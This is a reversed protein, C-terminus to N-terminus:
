GKQSKYNSWGTRLIQEAKKIDAPTNVQLWRRIHRVYVPFLRSALSHPISYEVNELQQFSNDFVAPPLVYAGVGICRKIGASVVDRGMLRGDDHYIVTESQADSVVVSIGYTASSGILKDLEGVGFIDDSGVVLFYDESVLHSQASLLGGGTGPYKQFAYTIPIGNYTNGLFSQITEGLYGVVVVLESIRKPLVDLTYTILPKGNVLVLPKPKNDTVGGMRSGRGAALIVAKM